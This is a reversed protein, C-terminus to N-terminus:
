RLDERSWPVSGLLTNMESIQLSPAAYRIAVHHRQVIPMVSAKNPNALAPCTGRLFYGRLLKGQIPSALLKQHNGASAISVREITEVLSLKESHFAGIKNYPKAWATIQESRGIVGLEDISNRLLANKDHFGLLTILACNRQIRRNMVAIKRNVPIRCNISSSNAGSVRLCKADFQISFM